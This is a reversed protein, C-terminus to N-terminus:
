VSIHKDKWATAVFITREILGHISKSYEPDTLPKELFTEKEENLEILFDYLEEKIEHINKKNYVRIILEDNIM